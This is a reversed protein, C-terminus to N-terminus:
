GDAFRAATILFQEAMEGCTITNLRLLKLLMIIEWWKSVIRIKLYLELPDTSIPHLAAIPLRIVINNDVCQQNPNSTAM